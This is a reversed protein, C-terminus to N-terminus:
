GMDTHTFLRLRKFIDLKIAARLDQGHVSFGHLPLYCIYPSTAISPTFCKAQSGYLVKHM